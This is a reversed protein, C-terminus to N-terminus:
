ALVIDILDNASGNQLAYGAVVSGSPSPAPYTTLLNSSTVFTATSGTAYLAVGFNCATGLKGTVVQGGGRLAVTAQTDQAQVDATVTGLWTDTDATIPTFSGSISGAKVLTGISLAAIAVGAIIPKARPVVQQYM